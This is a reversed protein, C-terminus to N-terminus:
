DSSGPPTTGTMTGGATAPAPVAEADPTRREVLLGGLPVAAAVIVMITTWGNWGVRERVQLALIVYLVFLVGHIPGMITVLEPMDMTRKIVSAALLVLYSVTEALALVKFWRITSV